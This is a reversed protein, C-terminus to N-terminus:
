RKISFIFNLYSNLGWYPIYFDTLIPNQNKMNNKASIYFVYSTYFDLYEHFISPLKLSNNSEIRSWSFKSRNSTLYHYLMDKGKELKKSSIRYAEEEKKKSTNPKSINFAYYRKDQETITGVQLDLWEAFHNSIKEILDNLLGLQPSLDFKLSNLQYLKQEIPEQSKLIECCMEWIHLQLAPLPFDKMLYIIDIAYMYCPINESGKKKFLERFTCFVSYLFTPRYIEEAYM